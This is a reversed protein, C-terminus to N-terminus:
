SFASARWHGSEGKTRRHAQDYLAEYRSIFREHTYHAAVRERGIRGMRMRLPENRSLAIVARAIEEDNMVPVVFGAHEDEEHMGHLLERCSGVDTAVVPKGAAMAELVALPQGESISSLVIVDMGGLRQKVDVSGTFTVDRVDLMRVLEVCEMYYDPDEDYPGMITFVAHPVERKIRAFSLIMTKIDKIPVVRVVAGVHFSADGPRKGPLREYEHPKVGNPIIEIKSAPCGLEIQIERNRGYLTIVSDASKYACRSLGYFFRIWLDKFYGKVWDAKIIEEERERSYIGHETLLMPKGYLLKGFSAAIGAYGTSVTHYLDAEPIPNRVLQMLPLVMSRVTWFMERFPLREYQEMCLEQLLDFYDRSMLFETATEWRRDRMVRFLVDWDVDASGAILGKFAKREEATLKFTRGWRDEERMYVDLFVETVEKVNDPLKYKFKGRSKEEAGITFLTFEHQPMASMLSHIWSSVGGTIYPYSGEAVICIRM